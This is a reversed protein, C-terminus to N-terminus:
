HHLTQLWQQCFMGSTRHNPFLPFLALYRIEKISSVKLCWEFSITHLDSAKNSSKETRQPRQLLSFSNNSSRLMDKKKKLTDLTVYLVTRIQFLIKHAHTPTLPTSHCPPVTKQATCINKQTMLSRPSHHNQLTTWLCSSAHSEDM